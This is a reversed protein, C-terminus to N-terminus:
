HNKSKEYLIQSYNGTNVGTFYRVYPEISSTTEMEYVLGLIQTPVEKPGVQLGYLVSYSHLYTGLFNRCLNKAKNIEIEVGLEM